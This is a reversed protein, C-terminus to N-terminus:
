RCVAMKKLKYVVLGQKGDVNEELPATPPFKNKPAITKGRKQVGRRLFRLFVYVFFRTQSDRKSSVNKLSDRLVKQPNNETNKNRFVRPPPTLPSFFLYSYTAKTM